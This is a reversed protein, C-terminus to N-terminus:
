PKKEPQGDPPEKGQANVLTIGSKLVMKDKAQALLADDQLGFFSALLPVPLGEAGKLLRSIEKMQIECGPAKKENGLIGEFIKQLYLRGTLQQLTMDLFLGGYILKGHLILKRGQRHQIAL